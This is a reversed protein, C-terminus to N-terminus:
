DKSALLTMATSNDKKKKAVSSSFFRHMCFRIENQATPNLAIHHLFLFFGQFSTTICFIWQFVIYLKGIALLAFVWTTGLLCSLIFVTKVDKKFRVLAGEDKFNASLDRKPKSIKIIVLLLVILNVVIICTVPLLMGIYFPYGQVTCIKSNGLYESHVVGFYIVIPLPLGWAFLSSKVMFSRTELKSMVTIKQYLNVGEVAMWCFTTLVFYHLGAAVIKCKILSSKKREASTIFLILLTLLSVCMFFHIKHTRDKRLNRRLLILVTLLLTVISIGCGIWTILKLELPNYGTQSTDLILAFNTLHNCLCFVYANSENFKYCGNNSWANISSNWFYCSFNGNQNKPKKFTISIPESLDIITQDIISVSVVASSILAEVSRSDSLSVSGNTNLFFYPNRYIFAYMLSYQPIAAKPILIVADNNGENLLSDNGIIVVMKQNSSEFAVICINTHSAESHKNSMGINTSSFNQFLDSKTFTQAMIDITELFKKSSNHENQAKLILTQDLDLVVNVLGLVNGLVNVKASETVNVKILQGLALIDALLSIDSITNLQLSGTIKTAVIDIKEESTLISSQYISTLAKTIDSKIGSKLMFKICRVDSNCWAVLDPCGNETCVIEERSNGACEMGGNQPVPNSCFRHRKQSGEFCSGSWPSWSSWEGNIPNLKTSCNDTSNYFNKCVCTLDSACFGNGSCENGDTKLCPIYFIELAANFNCEKNRCVTKLKCSTGDRLIKDDPCIENDGSCYEAIDCENVKNRCLTGQRKFYCNPQCCDPNSKHSCQADVKLVCNGPECCHDENRQCMELTGCDCLEGDERIGNGCTKGFHTSPYNSLCNFNETNNNLVDMNCNSFGNRRFKSTQMVCGNATLCMCDTGHEDKFGMLLGILFNIRGIRFDTYDFQYILGSHNQCFHFENGAWYDGGEHSFFIGGDLNLTKFSSSSKIKEHFYVNFNYADLYTHTNRSFYDENEQIEIAVVVLRVNIAQYIKDCQAITNLVREILFSHNYSYMPLMKHDCSVFLEVYLTKKRSLCPLYRPEIDVLKALDLSRKSKSHWKIKLDNELEILGPGVYILKFNYSREMETVKFLLKGIPRSFGTKSTTKGDLEEILHWFCLKNIHLSFILWELKRELKVELCHIVGGNHGTNTATSDCGIFKLSHEVGHLLSWKFIKNAIHEAPIAIEAIATNHIKMYNRKVKFDNSISLLDNHETYISCEFESKSCEEEGNSKELVVDYTGKLYKRNIIM